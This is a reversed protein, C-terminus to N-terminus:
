EMEDLEKLNESIPAVLKECDKCLNKEGLLSLYVKNCHKMEGCWECETKKCGAFGVVMMVAVSALVLFRLGKKKMPLDEKGPRGVAIKMTGNYLPSILFDLFCFGTVQIRM